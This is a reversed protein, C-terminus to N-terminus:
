EPIGQNLAEERAGRGYYLAETDGGLIVRGEDALYIVSDSFTQNGDPNEIVVHGLAVIKSVKKSVKNYYVDMKDAMLKGRGDEAVVNEYFHAINKDYNIILPGDCTIVTPEGSSQGPGQSGSNRIVVTVNKKFKVKKLQSDGRAGVGDININDKKVKVPIHSELVHEAPYIDLEETLLRTGDATTAVVNEQLRVKNKSKNYDGTDATITVPVEEAYAKAVVNQLHVTDALLNASDGEIEIEKNGEPTYKSFSFSYLQHQMAKKEGEEQTSAQRGSPSFLVQVRIFGAYLGVFIVTGFLIKRLM